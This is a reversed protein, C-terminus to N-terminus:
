LPRLQRRSLQTLFLFACHFQLVDCIKSWFHGTLRRFLAWQVLEQDWLKLCVFGLCSLKGLVLIRFSMENGFHRQMKWAKWVVIFIHGGLALEFGQLHLLALSYSMLSTMEMALFTIPKWGHELFHCWVMVWAFIPLTLWQDLIAAWRHQTWLRIWQVPGYVLAMLAFVEQFYFTPSKKGGSPLWYWGLLVYAVSVLCNAPMSLIAPLQSLTPEAYHEFGTEIQVGDLIGSAVIGMCLVLSGSVQLVPNRQIELRLADSKSPQDWEKPM